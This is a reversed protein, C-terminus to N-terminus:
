PSRHISSDGESHRCGKFPNELSEAHTGQVFREIADLCRTSESLGLVWHEIIVLLPRAAPSSTEKMAALDVRLSRRSQPRRSGGNKGINRANLEYTTEGRTVIRISDEDRSSSIKERWRRVTPESVQLHKAIQVNSLKAAKPHQLALQIVKETEASSRRLGHTANAAFSNWQADSRTGFRIEARIESLDALKAAAVRQFGDSIWHDTGDWFVAVPPFAVGARMLEAYERVINPNPAIRHQTDGDTRISTIPLRRVEPVAPHEAHDMNEPQARPKRDCLPGKNVKREFVAVRQQERVM